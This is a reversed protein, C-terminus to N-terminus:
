EREKKHKKCWTLQAKYTGTEANYETVKTNCHEYDCGVLFISLIALYKMIEM